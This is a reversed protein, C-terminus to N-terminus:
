SRTNISTCMGPMSPKSAVARADTPRFRFAAAGARGDDRQGGVGRGLVALGAERGAHIAEDGLRQIPFLQGLHQRDRHGAACRLVANAGLLAAFCDTM